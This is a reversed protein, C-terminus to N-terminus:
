LAGLLRDLDGESSWAGVSARLLATRPLDRVVIGEGALRDRTAPPDPDEWSVLTTDGRPAVTRGAAALRGALARAQAAAGAIVDDWGAEALVSLAALSLAVAERPLAPTDHRRADAKLPADLGGATDAFSIYSPAIPV